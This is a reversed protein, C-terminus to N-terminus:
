GKVCMARVTEVVEAHDVPWELEALREEALLRTAEPGYSIAVVPTDLSLYYSLLDIGSTGQLACDSDLWLDLIVLDAARALPCLLGEGGLCRYEPCQPGPCAMVEYGAEELWGGIRDRLDGSGEVVLVRGADGIM